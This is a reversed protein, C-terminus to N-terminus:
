IVAVTLVGKFRYIQDLIGAEKEIFGEGEGGGGWRGGM